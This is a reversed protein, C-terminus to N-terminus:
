LISSICQKGYKEFIALAFLQRNIQYTNLHEEALIDETQLDNPFTPLNRSKIQKNFRSPFLHVFEDTLKYM